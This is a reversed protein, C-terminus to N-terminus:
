GDDSADLGGFLNGNTAVPLKGNKPQIMRLATQAATETTFHDLWIQKPQADFCTARVTYGSRRQVYDITATAGYNALWIKTQAQTLQQTVAM